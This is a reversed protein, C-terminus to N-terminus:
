LCARLDWSKM